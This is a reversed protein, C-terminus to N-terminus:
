SRAASHSVVWVFSRAFSVLVACGGLAAVWDFFLCDITLAATLGVMLLSFAWRATSRRPEPECHVRYTLLVFLYRMGGVLLMWHGVCGADVAVSSAVATMLADTEMDFEAGFESCQGSRRALKGDLGDLAFFAMLTLGAWPQRVHFPLAMMAFVLALRVATVANAAGFRGSPTWTRRASWIWSGFMWAAVLALPRFQGSVGAWVFAVGLALAHDFTRRPDLSRPMSDDRSGCRIARILGYWLEVEPASAQLWFAMGIGAVKPRPPGDVVASEVAPHHLCREARKRRVSGRAHDLEPAAHARHDVPEDLVAAECSRQREDPDALLLGGWPSVLHVVGGHVDERLISLDLM